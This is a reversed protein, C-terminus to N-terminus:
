PRPPIARGYGVFRRLVRNGREMGLGIVTNGMYSLVFTGLIVGYFSRLRSVVVLFVTWAGLKGFCLITCLM